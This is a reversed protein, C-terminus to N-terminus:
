ATLVLPAGHTIVLTHEVHVALSGDTTKVTWGDYAEYVDGTGTM